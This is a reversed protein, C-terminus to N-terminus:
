HPRMSLDARIRERVQNPSAGYGVLDGLCCIRGPRQDIDAVVAERGPLDGHIDSLVAIRM